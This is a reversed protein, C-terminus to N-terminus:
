HIKELSQTGHPPAQQKNEPTELPNWQVDLPMHGPIVMVLGLFSSQIFWGNM